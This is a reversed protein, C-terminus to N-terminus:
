KFGLKNLVMMAPCVNFAALVCMLAPLYLFWGPLVHMGLLIFVAIILLFVQRATM